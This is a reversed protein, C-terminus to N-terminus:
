LEILEYEMSGLGIREAHELQAQWYIGPHVAEFKDEGAKLHEIVSGPMAPFGNVMDACAKDLAVPDLSAMIGLDQVIPLDNYGYCDCEPSIDTVFSIYIVKGAKGQVAGLAYEAMKEQVAEPTTRWNISIANFLCTVACEGCGWCKKEAITAKMGIKNGTWEVMEIANAPCWQSCKKCGTCKDDKIRPLVDSHMQQKGSRSGLGMGLNKIAGGFGTLEHCKFHSMVVMADAHYAASGINVEKFHKAQVPVKVFDKGTLGDAIILPAGAVAYDFGNLIATELHDVSNARTGVYLTNADTLFPRGGAKKVMDVVRRVYQPRIYAMNGTEGFHIKIAVLDRPTITKGLGAKILLKEAKDLLSIHKSRLNSFWVKAAM